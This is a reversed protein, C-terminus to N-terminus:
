DDLPDPPVLAPPGGDAHAGVLAACEAWATDTCRRRSRAVCAVVGSGEREVLRDLILECGRTCEGESCAKAAVKGCEAVCLDVPAPPREAAPCGALPVLALGLAVLAAGAFVDRM